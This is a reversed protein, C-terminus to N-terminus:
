AGRSFHLFFFGKKEIAVDFFQSSVFNGELSFMGGISSITHMGEKGVQVGCGGFGTFALFGKWHRVSLTLYFLSFSESFSCGSSSSYM